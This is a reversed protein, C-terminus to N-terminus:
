SWNKPLRSSAIWQEAVPQDNLYGVLHLDYFESQGWASYADLGGITFPPHPLHPYNAFDPPFKGVNIEGIIIEVEDCNSFVTLPNNGGGARDGM